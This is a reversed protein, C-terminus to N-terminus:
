KEPTPARIKQMSLKILGEQTREVEVALYRDIVLKSRDENEEILHEIRRNM